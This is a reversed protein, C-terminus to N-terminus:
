PTKKNLAALVITGIFWVMFLWGGFAGFVYFIKWMTLLLESM